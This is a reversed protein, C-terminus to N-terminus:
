WLVQKQLDKLFNFNIRLIDFMGEGSDFDEKEEAEAEQM